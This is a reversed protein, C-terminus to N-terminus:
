FPIETGDYGFFKGTDDTTLRNIVNLLGNVSKEVTVPARNTGMDTQVWGPHMAVVIINKDKLDNSFLKTLMNEAAKSCRYAPNFGNHCLDISGMKSTINIIKNPNDATQDNLLNPLFYRTVLMTGIVNTQYLQTMDQVTENHVNGRAIVGANNILLNLKIDKLQTSAQQISKEDTVDMEVVRLRQDGKELLARLEDDDSFTNSASRSTAIVLNTQPQKLLVKVLQKGIGRNAGTVLCNM